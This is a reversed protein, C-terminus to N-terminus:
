GTNSSRRNAAAITLLANTQDATILESTSTKAVTETKPYVRKGTVTVEQLKNKSKDIETKIDQDIDFTINKAASKEIVQDIKGLVNQKETGTLSLIDGRKNNVSTELETVKAQIQGLPSNSDLSKIAGDLEGKLQQTAGTVSSTVGDITKGVADTVAGVTGAVTGTAASVAGTVSGTVATVASTAGSLVGDIAGAAGTGGTSATNAAANAAAAAESAIATSSGGTLGTGAAMTASGSQMNIQAAPIDVTSGQLAATAGRLSLKRGSSFNAEGTSKINTKGTSEVYNDKGKVRIDKAASMNIQGAVEVNMNGGVRINYDGDITVSCKGSIYVHDSGMTVSYHDKQIRELRNGDKDIEIYSGNRHALQIRENNPTDDLEFAHGSETETANNYPYIPAFSSNPEAWTVGGASKISSKRNKKRTEIVTSQSKGRALRNLTSEKLYKGKPYAEASDSPKKPVNDFSTRPDSFGQDYKPKKSPKGPIVGMVVPNQASMGDMFFGMVMDGEKPTYAGPHNVPLVTHAWPLLNTPILEKNETHWGFCRVRVRGLQEPDQRDEVVGIWWVFGERGIFNKQAGAM